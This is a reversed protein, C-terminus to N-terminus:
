AAGTMETLFGDAVEQATRARDFDADTWDATVLDYAVFKNPQWAKISELHILILKHVIKKINM